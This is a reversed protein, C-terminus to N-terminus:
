ACLSKRQEQFEFENWKETMKKYNILYLLKILHIERHAETICLFTAERYIYLAHRRHEEKKGSSEQIYHLKLLARCDHVGLKVWQFAIFSM